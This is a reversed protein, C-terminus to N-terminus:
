LESFRDARRVSELYIEGIRIPDSKIKGCEEKVGNWYASRYLEAINLYAELPGTRNVLAMKM